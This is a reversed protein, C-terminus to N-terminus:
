PLRQRALRELGDCTARAEERLVHRIAWPGILPPVWFAPRIRAEFHLRTFGADAVLHWEAQGFEFDSQAPDVNVALEGLAQQRMTQVQRTEKCFILVCASARTRVLHTRADREELIESEKIAPSVEHFRAYDTLVYWVQALPADLVARLSVKYDDGAREIELHEVQAARVGPGIIIPMWVLVVLLGKWLKL